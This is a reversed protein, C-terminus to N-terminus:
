NPETVLEPTAERVSLSVPAGAITVTGNVPRWDAEGVVKFQASWTTDVSVGADKLASTYVHTIFGDGDVDAGAIWATGATTSTQSTEDGHQWLFHSPWVELAIDLNVSDLRVNIQHREAQTSLITKFNVLTEGGPPQVAITSSPLEVKKFAALAEAPIDVAPTATTPTDVTPDPDEPCKSYSGRPGDPTVFIYVAPASGDACLYAEVCGSAGVTECPDNTKVWTGVPQATSTVAQNSQVNGSETGGPQQGIGSATSGGILLGNPQAQATPSATPPPMPSPDSANSASAVNVPNLPLALSFVMTLFPRVM